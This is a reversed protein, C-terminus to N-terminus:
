GFTLTQGSVLRLGHCGQIGLSEYAKRSEVATISIVAISDFGETRLSALDKLLQADRKKGNDFRVLLPKKGSRDFPVIEDGDPLLSKTFRVIERTCRYSRVLSIVNTEAEGYLRRLPSDSEHLNTAQTFIAQRFDGLVTMRARPFLKKLYEYQFLSYDQGEDVFIHQIQTNTRIGEILEKLYLYPTGDEYFLERRSLREKTQKCIDAWLAPIDAGNTMEQIDSKNDSFLQTYLGTVDIFMLKKVSRKLPKFSEKVIKQRLLEEERHAVNFDDEDEKPKKNIGAYQEAIDFVDQKKHLEGWVAAYRDNDLYNLEELVWGAEGEKRELRALEDLLWQLM